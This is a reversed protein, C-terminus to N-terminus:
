HNACLTDCQKESSRTFLKKIADIQEDRTFLLAEGSFLLVLLLIQSLTM